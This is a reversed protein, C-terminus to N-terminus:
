KNYKIWVDQIGPAAISQLMSQASEDLQVLGDSTIAWVTNGLDDFVLKQPSLITSMTYNNLGNTYHAIGDTQVAYFNNDSADCVSIVPSSDYFNFVENIASTSLNLWAFHAAGVDNGILLERQNESNLHVIGKVEWDISLV